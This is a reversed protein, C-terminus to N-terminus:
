PFMAFCKKCSPWPEVENAMVRIPNDVRARHFLAVEKWSYPNKRYQKRVPILCTTEVALDLFNDIVEHRDDVLLHLPSELLDAHLSKEFKRKEKITDVALYVSRTLRDVFFPSFSHRHLLSAFVHDFNM